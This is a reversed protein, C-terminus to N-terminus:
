ESGHAGGNKAVALDFDEEVLAYNLAAGATAGAAMAQPVAAAPAVVNGAAWVRAHSTRGTPDVEIVEGWPGAARTLALSAVAEVRPRPTAATFIADLAVERGDVTRVGTLRGGNAEDSLVSAVAQPVLEIGRARLRRETERDLAGLGNTFAVVRDSLQRVLQLQHLNMPSTAIVGIREGRLEWGHCYPCHAVRTGWHAVLGEIEPLEDSIGTALVIGRARLAEGSELALEVTAGADRVSAVVGERFEVGYRVAEARGLTTLDAPSRGDHGLVNHMHPAFRNRPQGSDIVLTRRLSRGLAQAASLGAASGGIIIADWNQTTM